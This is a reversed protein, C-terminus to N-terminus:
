SGIEFRLHLNVNDNCVHIVDQMTKECYVPLKVLPIIEVCYLMTVPGHTADDKVGTESMYLRMKHQVLDQIYKILQSMYTTITTM